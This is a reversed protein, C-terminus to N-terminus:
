DLQGSCTKSPDPDRRGSVITGISPFGSGAGPSSALRLLFSSFRLLFGVVFGVVLAWFGIKKKLFFFEWCFFLWSALFRHRSGRRSGHVRTRHRRSGHVRNRLPPKTTKMVWREPCRSSRRAGRRAIGWGATPAETCRRSWPGRGAAPGSGWSCTLAAGASRYLM